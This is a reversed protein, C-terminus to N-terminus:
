AAAKGTLGFARADAMIEAARTPKRPARVAGESYALHRAARAQAERTRYGVILREGAMLLASAMAAFYHERTVGTCALYADWPIPDAPTGAQDALAAITPDLPLTNM